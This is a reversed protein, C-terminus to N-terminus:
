LYMAVHGLYHHGIRILTCYTNKASTKTFIFTSSQVLLDCVPDGLTVKCPIGTAVTGQLSAVCLIVIVHWM